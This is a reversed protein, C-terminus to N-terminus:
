AALVDDVLVDAMNVSDSFMLNRGGLDRKIPELDQYHKLLAEKFESEIRCTGFIDVESNDADSAYIFDGDTSFVISCDEHKFLIEDESQMITEIPTAPLLVKKM